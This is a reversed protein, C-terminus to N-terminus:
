WFPCKRAIKDIIACVRPIAYMLRSPPLRNPPFGENPARGLLGLKPFFDQPSFLSVRDLSPGVVKKLAVQVLHPLEHSTGKLGTFPLGTNQLCQKTLVPSVALPRAPSLNGFRSKVGCLAGFVPASFVLVLSTNFCNSIIFALSSRSM